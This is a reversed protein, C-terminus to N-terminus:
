ATGGEDFAAIAEDFFGLSTAYSQTKESGIRLDL